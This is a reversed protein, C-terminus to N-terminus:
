EFMIKNKKKVKQQISNKKKVRTQQKQKEPVCNACLVLMMFNLNLSIVLSFVFIHFFFM